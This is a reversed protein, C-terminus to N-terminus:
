NLTETAGARYPVYIIEGREMSQILLRAQLEWEERVYQALEDRQRQREWKNIWRLIKPALLYVGGAFVGRALNEYAPLVELTVAGAYFGFMALWLRLGGERWTSRVAERISM